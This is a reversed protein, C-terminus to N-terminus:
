KIFKIVKIFEHVKHVCDCKILNETNYFPGCNWFYITCVWLIQGLYVFNVLEHSWAAVLHTGNLDLKISLRGSFLKKWKILNRTSWQPGSLWNSAFYFHCNQFNERPTWLPLALMQWYLHPFSLRWRFVTSVLLLQM